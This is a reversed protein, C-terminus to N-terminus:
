FTRLEWPTSPTPMVSRSLNSTRTLRLFYMNVVVAVDQWTKVSRSPQDEGDLRWERAMVGKKLDPNLKTLYCRQLTDPGYESMGVTCMQLLLKAWQLRFEVHSLGGNTGLVSHVNM